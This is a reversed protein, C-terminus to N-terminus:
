LNNYASVDDCILRSPRLLPVDLLPERSSTCYKTNTCMTRIIRENQWDDETMRVRHMDRHTRLVCSYFVCIVACVDLNSEISFFIYMKPSECRFYWVFIDTRQTGHDLKTECAFVFICYFRFWFIFVSFLFFNTNNLVCVCVYICVCAFVYVCLRWNIWLEYPICRNRFNNNWIFM